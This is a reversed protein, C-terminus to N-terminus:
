VTQPSATQLLSAKSKLLERYVYIWAFTSVPVSVLLGVVLAIVGLINVLALVIFFGLLKWVKGKTIAYSKKMAAIPRMGTDIVILAAFSFRVAWFIGPIILLILGGLVTLCTLISTGLYKWFLRYEKFIEVFKPSEGDCIKLFIRTYGIKLIVSFVMVALTWFFAKNNANGLSSIAFLFLTTLLVIEKNAKFKEWGYKISEKISFM